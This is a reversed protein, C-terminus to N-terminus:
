EEGAPRVQCRCNVSLRAPLRADKPYQCPWGDCDFDEHISRTQGEMRKHAERVRNDRMTVWVKVTVKWMKFAGMAAANGLAVTENEALLKARSDRWDDFVRGLRNALEDLSAGENQAELLAALIQDRSSQTTRQAMDELWTDLWAAAYFDAEPADEDLESAWAELQAQALVFAADELEYSLREQVALLYRDIEGRMSLWDPTSSESVSRRKTATVIALVGRREQEFEAAAIRIWEAEASRAIADHANWSKDIDDAKM